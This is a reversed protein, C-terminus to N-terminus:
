RVRELLKGLKSTISQTCGGRVPRDRASCQNELLRSVIREEAKYTRAASLNAMYPQALFTASFLPRQRVAINYIRDSDGYITILLLGQMVFQM